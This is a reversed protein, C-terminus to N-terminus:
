VHARGIEMESLARAASGGISAPLALFVEALDKQIGMAIKKGLLEFSSSITSILAGSPDFMKGIFDGITQFAAIFRRYIENATQQAQLKASEWILELAGTINGTKFADVAAQFGKMANEGGVFANALKQGIAAADIRSLGEVIAELAPYVKSLIGAAFEVFKTNLNKMTDGIGDFRESLKSMIQPLLGLQGRATELEGSFNMLLPLLEGGSKGFIDMAAKARAAPDQISSIREAFIQMQETPTKGALDSYSIGLANMTAAQEKGGAGAEEMFKQLRNIAPGVKDAGAGANDFARELLLVNGATEGTRASLDNLRGGLDLADTFGQVTARAAAFAGDIVATFAKAAVNGVATAAAIKAFSLDFLTGTKDAANGAGKIDKSLADVKPSAGASEAGIAQLKKELNQVQGLRKMTSELETMTLEGSKVKGELNTMEAQVQKLTKELGVDQAGFEVSVDAM